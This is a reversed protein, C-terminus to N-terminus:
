KVKGRRLERKVRLNVVPFDFPVAQLHNASFIRGKVSRQKSDIKELILLDGVKQGSLLKEKEDQSRVVRWRGQEKLVWDGARLLFSQKEIMCSIQKESRIRWSSLLDETKPLVAQLSQLPMALRRYVGEEDWSDWELSTTFSSRIRILPLQGTESTKVWSGEKFTMFDDRSLNIVSNTGLEIKQIEKQLVTQALLDPGRWHAEALFHLASGQPVQEMRQLPPQDAEKLFFSSSEGDESLIVVKGEFCNRDKQAIEAWFSGEQESFQLIGFDNFSLGFYGPLAVIRTEAGNKLQVLATPNRGEGTPLSPTLSIILEDKIRPIEVLHKKSVEKQLSPIKIREEKKLEPLSKFRVREQSFWYFLLSSSLLFGLFLLAGVRLLRSPYHTFFAQLYVMAVLDQDFRNEDKERM